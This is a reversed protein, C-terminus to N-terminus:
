VCLGRPDSSQEYLDKLLTCLKELKANTGHLPELQIIEELQGSLEQFRAQIEDSARSEGEEFYKKLEDYADKSRLENHLLLTTNLQRLVDAAGAVQSDGRGDAANRM